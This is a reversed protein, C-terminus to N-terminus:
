FQISLNQLDGGLIQRLCDLKGEHQYDFRFHNFQHHVDCATRGGTNNLPIRNKGFIDEFEVLFRLGLFGFAPTLTCQLDVMM